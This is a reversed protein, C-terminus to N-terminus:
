RRPRAPVALLVLSVAAVLALVRWAEGGPLAGAPGALWVVLGVAQVALQAPVARRVMGLPVTVEVRTAAEVRAALLSALVALHVVVLLLALRGAGVDDGVLVRLGALLVLWACWGTRPRGVVLGALLVALVDAVVAVPGRISAFGAALPMLLALAGAVARVVWGPVTRVGELEVGTARGEERAAQLTRLVHGGSM